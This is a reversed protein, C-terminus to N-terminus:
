CAVHRTGDHRAESQVAESQKRRSQRGYRSVQLPVDSRSGSVGSCTLRDGGVVGATGSLRLRNDRRRVNSRAAAVPLQLALSRAAHLLRVRSLSLVRSLRSIVPPLSDAAQLHMGLVILLRCTCGRGSTGADAAAVRRAAALLSWMLRTWMRSRWPWGHVPHADACRGARSQVSSCQVAHQPSSSCRRFM